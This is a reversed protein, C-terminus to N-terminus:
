WTVHIYWRNMPQGNPLILNYDWAVHWRDICHQDGLITYKQAPIPKNIGCGDTYDSQNTSTNGSGVIVRTHDPIGSGTDIAIFDGQSLQSGSSVGNVQFEGPYQAVYTNFWDSASWTKSNQWGWVSSWYYWWQFVSNPDYNGTRLPYGGARLSQSALNQCDNCSCGFGFNPYNSNRAHAWQDAYSAAAGRNYSAAYVHPIVGSLGLITILAVILAIGPLIKHM